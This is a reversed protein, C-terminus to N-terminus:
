STSSTRLPILRPRIRVMIRKCVLYTIPDGPATTRLLDAGVPKHPNPVLHAGPSAQLLPFPHGSLLLRPDQFGGQRVKRTLIGGAFPPWWGSALRAHDQPLGPQSAYVALSYAARTFGSIVFRLHQRWVQLPLCCGLTSHGSGLLRGPVIRARCAVFSRWSGPLDQRKRGRPHATGSALAVLRGPRAAPLRLMENCRPLPPVSGLPVGHLSPSAPSVSSVSPFIAPVKPRPVM